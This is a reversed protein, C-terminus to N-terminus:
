KIGELQILDSRVLRDALQTLEQDGNPHTLIHRSYLAAVRIVAERTRKSPTTGNRIAQVTRVTVHARRALAARPMKRLLPVVDRQWPDQHVDIYTARVEGVDHVLGHLGEELRNSEKGIYRRVGVRVQRRSLLGVTARNSAQGDVGVTKPAPR